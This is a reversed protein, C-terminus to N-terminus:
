QPSSPYGYRHVPHYQNIHIGFEHDKGIATQSTNKLSRSNDEFWRDLGALSGPPAVIATLPSSGNTSISLSWPQNYVVIYTLHSIPDNSGQKIVNCTGIVNQPVIPIMYQMRNYHSCRTSTVQCHDPNPSYLHNPKTRSGNLDMILMTETPNDGAGCLFGHTKPRTPVQSTEVKRNRCRQNCNHKQTRITAHCSAYVSQATEGSRKGGANM